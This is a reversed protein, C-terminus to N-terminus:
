AFHRAGTLMQSALALSRSLVFFFPRGMETSLGLRLESAAFFGSTSTRSSLMM